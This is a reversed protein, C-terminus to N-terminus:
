TTVNSSCANRTVVSLLRGDDPAVIELSTWEDGDVVGHFGLDGDTDNLELFVRAVEFEQRRVTSTSAASAAFLAGVAIPLVCTRLLRLRTIM